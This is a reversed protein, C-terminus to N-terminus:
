KGTTYSINEVNKKFDDFSMAIHGGEQSKPSNKIKRGGFGGIKWPNILRIYKKADDIGVIAYAHDSFIEIKEQSKVDKIIKFKKKFTCTLSESKDLAEKITSIIDENFKGNSRTGKGTIPFICEELRGGHLHKPSGLIYGNKRYVAYAKEILKPWLAGNKIQKPAIVKKKNIRIIVAEKSSGARRFFRIDINDENEIKDLGQVFCDTIAKPNTKALAILSAMLYCDGVAAQKVESPLPKKNPFIKVDGKVKEITHKDYKARNKYYSWFSPFLRRVVKRSFFNSNKKDNFYEEDNAILFKTKSELEQKISNLIPVIFYATQIFSFENDLDSDDASEYFKDSAKEFFSVLDLSSDFKSKLYSFAPAYQKIIDALPKTKEKIYILNKNEKAIREVFNEKIKKNMDDFLTQPLPKDYSESLMKTYKDFEDAFKCLDDKLKKVNSSVEKYNSSKPDVGKVSEQLREEWIKYAEEIKQKLSM